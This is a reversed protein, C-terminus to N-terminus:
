AAAYRGEEVCLHARLDESSPPKTEWRALVRDEDSLLLVSPIEFVDYFDGEAAGNETEVDMFSIPVQEGLDNKDLFLTVKRTASKCLGCEQKGYVEIRM